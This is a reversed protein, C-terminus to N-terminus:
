GQSLDQSLILEARRIYHPLENQPSGAERWLEHGLKQARDILARQHQEAETLQQGRGGMDAFPSYDFTPQIGGLKLYTKLENDIVSLASRYRASALLLAMYFIWELKAPNGVERLCENFQKNREKSPQHAFKTYVFVDILRKNTFSYEESSGCFSTKSDLTAKYVGVEADIWTTLRKNLFHRSYTQCAKLYNGPEKAMYLRRFITVFSRISETSISEIWMGHEDDHLIPHTKYFQSRILENADRDFLALSDVDDQKLKLYELPKEPIPSNPSLVLQIDHPRYGPPIVVIDQQGTQIRAAETHSVENGHEDELYNLIGATRWQRGPTFPQDSFRETTFFKRYKLIERSYSDREICLEIRHRDAPELTETDLYLVRRSFEKKERHFINIVCSINM